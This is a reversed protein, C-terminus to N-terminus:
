SRSDANVARPVSKTEGYGNKDGRLVAYEDDFTWADGWQKRLEEKSSTGLLGCASATDAVLPSFTDKFITEFGSTLQQLNNIARCLYKLHLMKEEISGSAVLGSGGFLIRDM